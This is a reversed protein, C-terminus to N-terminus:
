HYCGVGKVAFHSSGRESAYFADVSDKANHTVREEYINEPTDSVSSKPKIHKHIFFDSVPTDSSNQRYVVQVIKTSM